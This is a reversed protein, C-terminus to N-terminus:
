HWSIAGLAWEVQTSPLPAIHTISVRFNCVFHSIPRFALSWSPSFSRALLLATSRAEALTALCIQTLLITLVLLSSIWHYTLFQSFRSLFSHSKWLFLAFLIWMTIILRRHSTCRSLRAWTLSAEELLLLWGLSLVLALKVHFWDLVVRARVVVSHVRGLLLIQLRHLRVCKDILFM